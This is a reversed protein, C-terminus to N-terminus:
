PSPAPYMPLSSITGAAVNITSLSSATGLSVPTATLTLFGPPVQYVFALGGSPTAGADAVTSYKVSVLPDTSDTTVAVGPAPFGLCDLVLAGVFGRATDPMEYPATAFAMEAPTIVEPALFPADATPVVVSPESVPYGSYVYAPVITMNPSTIQMCTTAAIKNAGIVQQVQM